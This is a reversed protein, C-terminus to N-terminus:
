VAESYLGNEYRVVNYSRKGKAKKATISQRNFGKYEYDEIKLIEAKKTKMAQDLTKFTKM